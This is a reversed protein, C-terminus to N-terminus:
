DTQPMGGNTVNPGSGDLLVGVGGGNYYKGDSLMSNSSSFLLSTDTYVRFSRTDHM